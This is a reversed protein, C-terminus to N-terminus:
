RYEPGYITYNVKYSKYLLPDLEELEKRFEPSIRSSAFTIATIPYKRSVRHFSEESLREYLYTLIYNPDVEALVDITEDSINYSPCHSTMWIATSPNDVAHCDDSGSRAYSNISTDIITYPFFNDRLIERIVSEKHKLDIM